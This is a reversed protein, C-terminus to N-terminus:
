PLRITSLKEGGLFKERDSLKWLRTRHSTGADLMPPWDLAGGPLTSFKQRFLGDEWADLVIYIPRRSQELTTMARALSEPTASEWRLIPRDAYYRMSGSQEGAVIVASPPVDANIYDAVQAVRRLQDALRFTDHARASWLGYAAVALLLVFLVPARAPAPWREIWSALAVATFAAMIALAPLLFRLYSWDDFVAYVLYSGVVMVVFAFLAQTHRDRRLRVFGLLSVLLIPSTAILWNVYRSANPIVNSIAFLEETSGYGSRLPSGYWISQLTALLIGAVAVPISFAIRQRAMILPVIALPALNPRIVIAMACAIGALADLSAGRRTVLLFCLMWAATVPVDSMPQISHHMFVPTFALLVAAIVAAISGGLQFALLATAVVAIAASAIVVMSAGTVGAIAHPLAMLLPLGPPYTPSQLGPTAPRWGLPTTLWGDAGALDSALLDRTFLAPRTWMAAESIYGSADAGAASRTAYVGAIMASVLAVAVAIAVHRQCGRWAAELDADISRARKAFLFWAAGAALAAIAIPLPSRVSIRLGGVTTRFGGSAALVM